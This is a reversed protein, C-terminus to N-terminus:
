AIDKQKASRADAAESALILVARMMDTDSQVKPHGMEAAMETLGIVEGLGGTLLYDMADAIESPLNDNVKM